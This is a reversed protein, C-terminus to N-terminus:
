LWSSYFHIDQIFLGLANGQNGYFFLYVGSISCSMLLYEIVSGTTRLFPKTSKKLLTRHSSWFAGVVLLFLSIGVLMHMILMFRKIEWDVAIVPWILLGSFFMVYLLTEAWKHQYALRKWAGKLCNDEQMNEVKM